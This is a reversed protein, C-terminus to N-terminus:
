LFQGKRVSICFVSPEGFRCTGIYLLYPKVLGGEHAGNTFDDPNIGIGGVFELESHDGAELTKGSVCLDRPFM